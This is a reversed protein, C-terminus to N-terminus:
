DAWEPSGMRDAGDTPDQGGRGGKRSGHDGEEGDPSSGWVELPETPSIVEKERQTEM